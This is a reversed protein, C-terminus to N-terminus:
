LEFDEGDIRLTVDGDAVVDLAEIMQTYGPWSNNDECVKLQEWWSRWRAEGEALARATLQLVTVAYPPKNEVAVVYSADPRKGTEARLAEGYFSFQAHYSMFLADRTFRMPETCRATKVDILVGDRRADPRSTCARGGLSWAIQQEFITGPSYLLDAADRHARIADAMRHSQDWESTSLIEADRNAAVFADWEKGRRVKGPYRIVPTGLVLAHLGRGLRRSLTDNDAFQAAQWAHLPSSAFGKLWSYRVPVTRPDIPASLMEALEGTQELVDADLTV